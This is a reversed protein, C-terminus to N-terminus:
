RLLLLVLLGLAIRYWGFVRFDHSRVYVLFSRIVLLASVFAAVFGIALPLVDGADLVHLAKVLSFLSAASVTPLALYFSFQTAVPRDLGALMGGVITAGARSVGPILSAVQAVGIWLAQSWSVNEIRDVSSRRRRREVLLIVIGGLILATAVTRPNFLREEIAHHVLFGIAAAPLFAAAVKLVLDRAAADRPVRRALDTLEVGYQWFVALIAGMQIFIEMTVRPREPYDIFAGVLILHGTSSVPLFETVGEVVGMVLAKLLLLLSM